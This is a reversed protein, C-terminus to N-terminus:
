FWSRRIKGAEWVSTLKLLKNLLKSKKEDSFRDDKRISQSLLMLEDISFLRERVFYQNVNTRVIEISPDFYALYELDKYVSKREVSFGEGSLLDIIEKVTLPHFNDTYKELFRMIQLVRMKMDWGSSGM